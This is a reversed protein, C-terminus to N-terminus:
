LTFPISMVLHTGHGPNSQLDLEGDLSKLRQRIGLLGLGTAPTAGASLGVGNDKVSGIVQRDTHDISVDLTTANAHRVVNTIAEHMARYLCFAVPSPLRDPVSSRFSVQLGTRTSVGDLLHRLATNLGLDDLAVPYLDRSLSRLQQDLQDALQLSRDLQSRCRPPLRTMAETLSLQLTFLIQGACDHIQRATRRSENELAENIGRLAANAELFRRYTMEFPSLCEMLFAWARTVTTRDRAALHAPTSESASQHLLV